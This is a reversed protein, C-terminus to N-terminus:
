HKTEIEVEESNGGGAGRKAAESAVLNRVMDVLAPDIKTKPHNSKEPDAAIETAKKVFRSLIELDNFGQYPPERKADQWKTAMLRAICKPADAEYEAKLAKAGVANYAYGTATGKDKSGVVYEVAGSNAAFKRFTAMYWGNGLADDLKQIGTTDNHVAARLVASVAAVQINAKLKDSVTKIAGIYGNLTSGDLTVDWTKNIDFTQAKAM